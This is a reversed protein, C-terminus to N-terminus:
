DAPMVRSARQAKIRTGRGRWVCDQTRQERTLGGCARGGRRDTPHFVYWSICGRSASSALRLHAKVFLVSSSARARACWILTEVLCFLPQDLRRLQVSFDDKPGDGLAVAADTAARKHRHKVGDGDDHARQM